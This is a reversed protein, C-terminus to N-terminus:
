TKRSRRRIVANAVASGREKRDTKEDQMKTRSINKAIKVNEM